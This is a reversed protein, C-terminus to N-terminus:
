KAPPPAGLGDVQTRVSVTGGTADAVPRYVADLAAVQDTRAAAARADNADVPGLVYVVHVAVHRDRGLTRVLRGLEAPDNAGATRLPAGAVLLHIVEVAPDALARELGRAVDRQHDLTLGDIWKGADEAAKDDLAQAAPRWTKGSTTALWLKGGGLVTAKAVRRLEHQVAGLRTVPQPPPPGAPERRPPKRGGAAPAEPAAPPAPPTWFVQDLDRHGDVVVAVGGAVFRGPLLQHEGTGLGADSPPPAGSAKALARRAHFDALGGLGRAAAALRGQQEALEPQPREALLAWALRAADPGLGGLASVLGATAKPSAAAGSARLLALQNAPDREDRLARLVDDTVEPAPNRALGRALAARADDADRRRGDRLAELALGAAKRDPCAAVDELLTLDEPTGRGLAEGFADKAKALDRTTLAKTLDVGLDPKAPAEPGAPGAPGAAAAPTARTLTVTTVRGDTLAALRSALSRYAAERESREVRGREDSPAQAPPLEFATVHLAVDRDWVLDRVAAVTADADAAGRGDPLGALLLHVQQPPPSLELARRLAGLVDRGREGGARTAFAKAEDLAKREVAAFGPQWARPQPGFRVLHVKVDGGCDDLAAAVQAGALELAAKPAPKADPAPEGQTGGRPARAPRGGGQDAAGEPKEGGEPPAAPAPAFADDFAAEAAEASADLLLAVRDAPFRDPLGAPGVTPEALDAPRELGMAALAAAALFRVHRADDRLRQRVPGEAAERAAAGRRALARLAAARAVEDKDRLTKVLALTPEDGAQAAVLPGLLLKGRADAGEFAKRVAREAKADGATRALAERAAESVARNASTAQGLLVEAVKGKDEALLATAAKGLADLAEQTAKPDRGRDREVAAVAEDWAKTAAKLEREGARAPGGAGMLLGTVVAAAGARWGQGRM